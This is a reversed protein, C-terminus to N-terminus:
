VGADAIGDPRRGAPTFGTGPLSSRCTVNPHTADDEAFCVRGFPDNYGLAAVLRRTMQLPLGHRQAAALIAPLGGMGQTRIM